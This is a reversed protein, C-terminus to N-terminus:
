KIEWRNKRERFGDNSMLQQPNLDEPLDNSTETKLYYISDIKCSRIVDIALKLGLHRLWGMANFIVPIDGNM